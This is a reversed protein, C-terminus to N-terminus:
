HGLAPAAVAVGEVAGLVSIAPTIVGDGYLLAAGFLGLMVLLKRGPRQRVAGGVLAMLALIGGEGRNDARMVFALYRFPVVFTIAWVVLSLGGLVNEPTPPVAHPGDFCEKLAYLPSTGIDGYVVGLAGLALLALAKGTAPVRHTGTAPTQSPPAAAVPLDPSSAESM